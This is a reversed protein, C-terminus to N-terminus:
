GEERMWEMLGFDRIVASLGQAKEPLYALPALSVRQPFPNGTFRYYNSKFAGEKAHLANLQAIASDRMIEFALTRRSYEEPTPISQEFYPIGARGARAAYDPVLCRPKGKRFFASYLASILLYAQVEGERGISRALVVGEGEWLGACESERLVANKLVIDEPSLTGETLSSLSQFAREETQTDCKPAIGFRRLAGSEIFALRSLLLRMYAAGLSRNLLKLDSFLASGELPVRFTCDKIYVGGEREFVGDLAASTPFVACPIKRINAFFRAARLTHPKGAAAVLAIEDSVSFLPLCDRTDLVVSIIRHPMAACYANLASEDTVFLVKGAPYQSLFIKIGEEISCFILGGREQGPSKTKPLLSAFKM